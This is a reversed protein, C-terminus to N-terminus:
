LVLVHKSLTYIYVYTVIISHLRVHGHRYNLTFTCARSSLLIYVYVYTVITSHLRVRVHRYYLTFTCTRSSLLTYIYVYIVIISHLRVRVQRYYLTFTCTRSSLLTSVYVYTRVASYSLTMCKQPSLATLVTGPFICRQSGPGIFLRGGGGVGEKGDTM